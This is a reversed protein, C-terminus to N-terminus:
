QPNPSPTALSKELIAKAHGCAEETPQDGQSRIIFGNAARSITIQVQNTM